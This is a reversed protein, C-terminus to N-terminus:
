SCNFILYSMLQLRCLKYKRTNLPRHHSPLAYFFIHHFCCFPIASNTPLYPMAISSTWVWKFYRFRYIKYVALAPFLPSPTHTYLTYTWHLAHSVYFTVHINVLSIFKLTGCSCQVSQARSDPQSNRRANKDRSSSSGGNSNNNDNSYLHRHTQQRGKAM